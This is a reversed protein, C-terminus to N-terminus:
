NLVGLNLAEKAQMAIQNWAQKMLNATNGFITFQETGGEKKIMDELDKFRDNMFNISSM